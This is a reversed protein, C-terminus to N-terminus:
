GARGAGSVLHDVLRTAFALATSTTAALSPAAGADSSVKVLALREKSHSAAMQGTSRHALSISATADLLFPPNQM